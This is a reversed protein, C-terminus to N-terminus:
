PCNIKGPRVLGGAGRPVICPAKSDAAPAESWSTKDADSLAFAPLFCSSGARQLQVLQQLQCCTLM